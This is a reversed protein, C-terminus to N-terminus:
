KVNQGIEVIWYNPHDGSTWKNRLRETGTGDRQHNHWVRWTYNTDIDSELEM